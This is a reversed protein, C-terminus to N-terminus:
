WSRGSWRRRAAGSFRRIGITRRARVEHAFPPPLAGLAERWPDGTLARRRHDANSPASSGAGNVATVRVYYTGAAVGAYAAGTAAVPATVIPAGGPTLAATLLYSAPPDGAGPTWSLTVTNGTVVAPNVTPAGPPTPAAVVVTVENSPGSTGGSNLALVRVYYTGPPIGPIVAGPIGPLSVTAVPIAFGPSTGAVLLYGTALGGTAPANWSFTGTTGALTVALGTPAAPPPPGQPVTITVATSEAAGSANSALVSVVFTGNPASVAFSTALGVPLSAVM